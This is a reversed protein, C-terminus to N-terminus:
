KVYKELDAPVKLGLTQVATKSIVPEFKDQGKIPMDAPKSKGLLIDGAMEGAMKGLKYFDLNMSAAAGNKLLAAEGSVVPVKAENTIKTLAATASAVVNDTPVYIFGVKKSILSQAAQQIDNVNSVTAEEVAIGHAKAAEKALNAQIQSNVESSCYILGLTKTGPALKLGLEVQEKVPNMDNTGTVNTGPKNNDKVLKASKFDTIATGVIPIDKTANAMSQATPTAIACILDVKNNVFRNAINQLNSQDAQANQQDIKLNEGVKFGKAALGDVLGKNAADLAAHQVLQAIGVNYVKKSEAAKKEGGGCGAFLGALMALALGLAVVKKKNMM